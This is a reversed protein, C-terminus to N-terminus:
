TFILKNKIRKFNFIIIHKNNTLKNLHRDAKYSISRYNTRFGKIGSKILSIRHRLLSSVVFLVVGVSRRM